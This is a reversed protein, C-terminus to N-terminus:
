FPLSKAWVFCIGTLYPRLLTEKWFNDFGRSGVSYTRCAEFPHLLKYNVVTSQKCDMTKKTKKQLCSLIKVPFALLLWYINHDCVKRNKLYSMARSASEVFLRAEPIRIRWLTGTGSLRPPPSYGTTSSSPASGSITSWAWWHGWSAWSESRTGRTWGWTKHVSMRLWCSCPFASVLLTFVVGVTNM